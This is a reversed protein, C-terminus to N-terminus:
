ALKRAGLVSHIQGFDNIFNDFDLVYLAQGLNDSVNEHDQDM